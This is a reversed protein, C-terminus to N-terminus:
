ALEHVLKRLWRHQIASSKVLRRALAQRRERTRGLCYLDHALRLARVRASDRPPACASRKGWESPPYSDTVKDQDNGLHDWFRWPVHVTKLHERGMQGVWDDNRHWPHGNIRESRREIIAILKVKRAVCDWDLDPKRPLSRLLEILGGFTYGYFALDVFATHHPGLALSDPDLGAHRLYGHIARIAGPFEPEIDGLDHDRISFHLMRLRGEWHTGDLLGLLHDHLNEPSRGVFVLDSNECASLVRACCELLDDLFEPYDHPRAGDLLGGLRTRSTVDWRFPIADAHRRVTEVPM